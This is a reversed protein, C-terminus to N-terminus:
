KMERSLDKETGVLNYRLRVQSHWSIWLNELRGM